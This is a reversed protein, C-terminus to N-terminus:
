RSLKFVAAKLVNVAAHQADARKLRGDKLAALMANYDGRVGPMVVDNGAAPHRTKDAANWWDTMVLGDFGWEERLVGTMIDYTTACYDDNVKNYSSMIALPRGYKVALEFPKLYIERLETENIM